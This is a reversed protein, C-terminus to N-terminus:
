QKLLKFNDIKKGDSVEIIYLANPLSNLHLTYVSLGNTAKLTQSYVQKGSLSTATVLIQKNKESKIELVVTGNTIPNPNLRVYEKAVPLAIKVIKSYATTGDKNVSKIRYYIEPISFGTVSKDAYEYQNSVQSNNAAVNTIEEFSSGDKSREVIYHSLNNDELASWSVMADEGILTAAVKQWTIPLTLLNGFWLEQGSNPMQASFFINGNFETFGYPFSSTAGPMLDQIMKTGVTTGDSIWIENGHTDDAASFFLKGNIAALNNINYYISSSFNNKVMVTGIATGDSKWLEDGTVPNNVSFYLVGNVNAMHTISIGESGPVIDKVIVTGAATGNTKWLETGNAGNDAAFFLIGNVNTFPSQFDYSWYSGVGPTITKLIFTGASTGNSRWIESQNSVNKHIFYLIGGANILGFTNYNSFNAPSVKYGGPAAGNTSYLNTNNGADTALFFLKGNVDTLWQPNSNGSGPNIDMVIQSSAPTGNSQWLEIGYFSTSKTYFVKTGSVTFNLDWGFDLEDVFVTGAVSGDSKWLGRRYSNGPPINPNDGLFIISGGLSEYKDRRPFSPFPAYSTDTHLVVTEGQTGDTKWLQYNNAGFFLNSGMKTLWSPYSSMLGPIIDKVMQTGTNSGDTKWLEAGYIGDNATIFVDSISKALIKVNSSNPGVYIDKMLVTGSATGDTKWLENGSVGDNATFLLNSNLIIFNEPISSAVGTNIDKIIETGATTGDTKWLEKGNTGNNATFFLTNNLVWFNQPEGSASGPNIDKVMSTGAQTGDSSWLETGNSGNNISFYLKNNYALMDKCSRPFNVSPSFIAVYDMTNGIGTTKWLIEASGGGDYIFGVCFLQGNMETFLQPELIDMQGGMGDNYVLKETGAETGNTKWLIKGSPFPAEASFFLEGNFVTLNDPRSATFSAPLVDKVMVTGDPTGDTKWLEFGNIGNDATFFLTNSISIFQAPFGWQGGPYIDKILATGVETGDSKWLELGEVDSPATFYLVGNLEYVALSFGYNFAWSSTVKVLSTGSATGDSKWLGCANYDSNALFYLTGGVNILPSIISSESGPYIDKLIVTGAETGDSKWIEKGHVGDNLLFFLTGNIVINNKEKSVENLDYFFTPVSPNTNIDKFVSFPQALMNNWSICFLLLWTFPIHNKMFVLKIGTLM